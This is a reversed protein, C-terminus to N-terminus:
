TGPPRFLKALGDYVMEYSRVEFLPGFIEALAQRRIVTERVAHWTLDDVGAAIDAPLQKNVKAYEAALEKWNGGFGRGLDHSVRSWV